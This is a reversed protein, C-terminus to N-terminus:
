GAAAVDKWYAQASKASVGKAIAAKMQKAAEQAADVAEELSLEGGSITVVRGSPLPCKIKAARISAAAKPKRTKREVADRTEGSLVLALTASQDPSKSISYAKSFGFKGSMFADLAEPILDSPSLWRTITSPDKSLHRALDQRQWGPHLGMLETCGMYIEADSLDARQINESLQIVCIQDETLPEDTIIVDLTELGVLAAGALRRHGALLTGDPMAVVPQIQRRELSEGLERLKEEPGLDKRVQPKVKFFSLPKKCLTHM